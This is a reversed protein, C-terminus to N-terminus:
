LCAQSCFVNGSKAVLIYLLCVRHREGVKKEEKTKKSTVIYTELSSICSLSSALWLLVKNYVHPKRANMYCM